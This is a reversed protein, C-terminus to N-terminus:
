GKIYEAFDKKSQKRRKQELVFLLTLINGAIYKTVTPVVRM